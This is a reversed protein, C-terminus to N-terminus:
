YPPENKKEESDTEEEDSLLKDNRGYSGDGAAHANKVDTETNDKTEQAGPEGTVQNGEHATKNHDINESSDFDKKAM